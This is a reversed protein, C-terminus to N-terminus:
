SFKPARDSFSDGPFKARPLQSPETSVCPRHELASFRGSFLPHKIFFVDGLFFDTEASEMARVASAPLSTERNKVFAPRRMFGM